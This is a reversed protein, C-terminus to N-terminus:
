TVLEQGELQILPYWQLREHGRGGQNIRIRIAARIIDRRKELPHNKWHHEFMIRYKESSEPNNEFQEQIETTSFEKFRSVFEALAGDQGRQAMLTNWKQSAEELEGEIVALDARADAHILKQKYDRLIGSVHELRETLEQTHESLESLAEEVASDDQAKLAGSQLMSSMLGTVFADAIATSISTHKNERDTLSVRCKYIHSVYRPKGKRQTYSLTSYTKEGCTCELIGSLLYKEKPGKRQPALLNKQAIAAILNDREERSIIPEIRSVPLEAGKHMLIGANRERILLQKITGATWVDPTIKTEGPRTRDERVRGMMPSKIGQKTWRTAVGWISEKGSTVNMIATRLHAAETPEVPIYQAGEEWEWGLREADEPSLKARGQFGFPRVGWLPLGVAREADYRRKQRASRIRGERRGSAFISVATDEGTTTSPDLLGDGDLYWVVNGQSSADIFKLGDGYTRALREGEVTILYDVEGTRLLDLLARAQPRNELTTDDAGKGSAAIGDDAFIHAPDVSWGEAKAIAKCTAIQNEVKAVKTDKKSIRAYIAARKTM